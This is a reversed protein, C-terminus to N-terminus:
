SRKKMAGGIVILLVLLGSAWLPIKFFAAFVAVAVVTGILSIVVWALAEQDTM